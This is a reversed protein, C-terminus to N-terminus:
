WGDGVYQREVLFQERPFSDFVMIDKRGVMGKKIKKTVGACPVTVLAAVFAAM